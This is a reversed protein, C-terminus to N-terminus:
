CMYGYQQTIYNNGSCGCNANNFSNLMNNAQTYLKNAESVACNNAAAIAGQIFYYISDLTVKQQKKIAGDCEMIDLKMFAKDFKEQLQDVRMIKKTVFNTTAPAISYTITYVGDPLPLTDAGVATIGLNESNLVNLSLVAFPISVPDFGPATVTLTPSTVVPPTTPYTSADAVGLLYTNFTPVVFIDLNLSPM